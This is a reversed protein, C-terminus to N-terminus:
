RVTVEFACGAGAAVRRLAIPEGHLEALGRLMGEAFPELGRRHSRYEVRLTAADLREVEIEPPRLDPVMLAFRAPVSPLNEVCEGFRRGLAQLVPALVERMAAVITARGLEVMVADRDGGLQEVAAGLLRLMAEETPASRGARGEIARWAPEGHRAIVHGAQAQTFLRRVASRAKM